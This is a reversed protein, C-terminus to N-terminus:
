KKIEQKVVPYVKAADDEIEKKVPSRSFVCYFM